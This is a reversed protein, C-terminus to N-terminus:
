SSATSQCSHPKALHYSLAAFSLTLGIVPRISRAGLSRESIGEGRDGGGDCGESLSCLGGQQKGVMGPVGRREAKWKGNGHMCGM